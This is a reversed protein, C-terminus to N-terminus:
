CVRWCTSTVTAICGRYRLFSTVRQRRLFRAPIIWTQEAISTTEPSTITQCFEPINEQTRVFVAFPCFMKYDLFLVETQHKVSLVLFCPLPATRNEFKGSWAVKRGINQIALNNGPTRKWFHFALWTQFTRKISRRDGYVSNVNISVSLDSFAIRMKFMRWVFLYWYDPTMCDKDGTFEWWM